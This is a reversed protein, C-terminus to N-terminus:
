VFPAIKWKPRIDEKENWSRMQLMMRRLPLLYPELAAYGSLKELDHWLSPVFSRIHPKDSRYYAKVIEYDALPRRNLLPYNEAALKALALVGKAVSPSVMWSPLVRYEFGGHRQRRFDGLFGYQPKRAATTADELLTLPLAVYNDLVRLLQADLEVGSFHIHGGLPFGRVPMGGAVWALETDTIRKAALQMTRHLHVILKRVDTSPAPRLEALPFVKRRSPLVIADCGFPGEKGVFQSAFRVKGRDTVLLFEPDAGLMVERVGGRESEKALRQDFRNIAQAFLEALRPSLVPIPEVGQVVLSADAKVGVRVVGYDLGLAYISRVAIRMARSAYYGPQELGVENFDGGASEGARKGATGLKGYFVGGGSRHLVTLAQLHFVPVIYEHSWRETKAADSGEEAGTELGHLRLLEASRHPQLAALISKVPQLVAPEGKDPHYAGWHILRVEEQRSQPLKAGHPATLGALLADLGPEGSHLLFARM